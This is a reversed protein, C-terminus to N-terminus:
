VDRLCRALSSSPPHLSRSTDKLAATWKARGRGVFMTKFKTSWKNARKARKIQGVRRRVVEPYEIQRLRTEVPLLMLKQHESLELAQFEFDLMNEAESPPMEVPAESMQFTKNDIEEWNPRPPRNEVWLARAEQREIALQNEIGRTPPLCPVAWPQSGDIKELIGEANPRFVLFQNKILGELPVRPNKQMFRPWAKELVTSVEFPGWKPVYTDESGKHRENTWAHEFARHVEAKTARIEATLQAHEHTDPEALFSTVDPAM